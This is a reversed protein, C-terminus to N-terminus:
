VLQEESWEKVERTVALCETTNSSLQPHPPVFARPSFVRTLCRPACQGLRSLPTSGADIGRIKNKFKIDFYNYGIGFADANSLSACCNYECLKIM